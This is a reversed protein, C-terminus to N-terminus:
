GLNRGNVRVARGVSKPLPFSGFWVEKRCEFSTRYGGSDITHTCSTIRYKGGFQDGVGDFEIVQGARIRLDGVTSGAGTLRNNLRPLLEGILMRVAEIPGITTIQLASKGIALTELSGLGPYVELSFAGRDFDWSLVMVLETQIAAVWVRVSIGPVQGVTSLKPTFEMLSEGYKLTLDADYHRIVFPFRLVYGQPDMTHDIYMDSGNQKAIMSLFDFDSQNDQVRVAKRAELPDVIYTLALMVVSLAGGVPDPYPILLDALTVLSVVFPDPLPLVGLCPLDIAFSRSKSGEAMRHLFDHAIVTVTPMGGNPFTPNIGTIEGVFVKEIPDGAYGLSLEFGNDVQLLPHDLWTLNPSALQIEVRSAGEIGNQFSISMLHARMEAPIQDGNIEVRFDPTRVRGATM